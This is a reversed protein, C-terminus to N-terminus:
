DIYEAVAIELDHGAANSREMDGLPGSSSLDALRARGVRYSDSSGQHESGSLRHRPLPAGGSDTSLRAGPLAAAAKIRAEEM